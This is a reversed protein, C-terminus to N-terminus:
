CHFSVHHPLHMYLLIAFCLLTYTCDDLGLRRGTAIRVYVRLATMITVVIMLTTNLALIEKTKKSHDNTNYDSFDLSGLYTSDAM